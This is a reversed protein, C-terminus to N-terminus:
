LPPRTAVFIDRSGDRDSDIYLRCGDDSIWTPHDTAVSNVSSLATPTGFPVSTSARTAVFVDTNGTRASSFFLTLEDLTVVPDESDNFDNITSPFAMMDLTFPTAGTRTARFLESSSNRTSAFYLTFGDPMVYAQSDDQDSNIPSALPSQAVFDSTLSGRTAAWIDLGNSGARDSSFYLTLVDGTVTPDNETSATDLALTTTTGFASTTTPRTATFLDYSGGIGNTVGADLSPWRQFYVTLEDHTLRASGDDAPTNLEAVAVPTGFDQTLDCATAAESPGDSTPADSQVDSGTGDFAADSSGRLDDL